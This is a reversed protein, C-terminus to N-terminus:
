GQAEKKRRRAEVQRAQLARMYASRQEPTTNAWRAKGGARHFAEREEDTAHRWRAEAGMRGLEVAAGLKDTRAKGM